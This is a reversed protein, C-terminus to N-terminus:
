NHAIGKIDLFYSYRQLDFLIRTDTYHHRLKRHNPDFDRACSLLDNPAMNSPFPWLLSASSVAAPPKFPATEYNLHADAGLFHNCPVPSIVHAVVSRAPPSKLLIGSLYSVMPRRKFSGFLPSVSFFFSYYCVSLLWCLELLATTDSSCVVDIM